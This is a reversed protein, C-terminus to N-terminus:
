TGETQTVTSRSHMPGQTNTGENSTRAWAAIDGCRVKVKGVLGNM